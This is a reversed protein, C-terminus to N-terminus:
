HADEALRRHIEDINAAVAWFGAMLVVSGLFGLLLGWGVLPPTGQGDPPLFPDPARTLGMAALTGGLICTAFGAVILAASNRTSPM